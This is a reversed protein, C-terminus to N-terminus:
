HSSTPHDSPWNEKSANHSNNTYEVSNSYTNNNEMPRIIM